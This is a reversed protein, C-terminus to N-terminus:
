EKNARQVSIWQGLPFNGEKHGHPVRCHSARKQFDKLCNFGDEWSADLPKWVFGIKELQQRREVTMTSRTQRQRDVWQGLMFGNEKHSLPVLCDEERNKYFVLYTYGENWIAERADWVFGLEDLRRLKEEPIKDRSRRQVGAWQGLRFGNEIWKDPVRCSGTRDSYVKLYRFGKEWDTDVVNWFFGLDDLRRRRRPSLGLRNKRQIRSGLM